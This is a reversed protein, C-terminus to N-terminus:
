FSILEIDDFDFDMNTQISTGGISFFSDFATDEQKDKIIDVAQKMLDIYTSMDTADNTEENFQVMLNELPESQGLALKRYIDLIHKANTYHIHTQGHETVYLLIYPTLSNNKMEIVGHQKFCFIVGPEAEKFEANSTIAYM